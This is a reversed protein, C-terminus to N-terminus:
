VGRAASRRGGRRCGDNWGGGPRPRCAAPNSAASDGCRVPPAKEWVVGPDRGSERGTSGSEDFPELALVRMTGAGRQQAFQGRGAFSMWGAKRGGREIAEQAGAAEGFALQQEVFRGRAFLIFGLEGIRDPLAVHEEAGSDRAGASALLLDEQLGCEVIGATEDGVSLEIGVLPQIRKEIAQPLGDGGAANGGAEVHVIALDIARRLQGADGSGDADEDHM